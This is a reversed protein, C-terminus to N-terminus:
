STILLKIQDETPATGLPVCYGYAALYSLYTGARSTFFAVATLPRIFTKTQLQSITACNSNDTMYTQVNTGLGVACVAQVLLVRKIILLNFDIINYQPFPPPKDDSNNFEIIYM